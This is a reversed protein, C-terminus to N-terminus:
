NIEFWYNVLIERKLLRQVEGAVSQGFLTMECSSSDFCTDRM